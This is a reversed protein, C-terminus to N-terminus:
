IVARTCNASPAANCLSGFGCTPRRTVDLQMQKQDIVDEPLAADPDHAASANRAKCAKTDENGLVAQLRDSTTGIGLAARSPPAIKCPKPVRQIRSPHVSPPLSM